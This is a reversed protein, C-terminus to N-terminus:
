WLATSRSVNLHHVQVFDVDIRSYNNRTSFVAKQLKSQDTTCRNRQRKLFYFLRVINRNKAKAKFDVVGFWSPSYSTAQVAQIIWFLSVGHCWCPVAVQQSHVASVNLLSILIHWWLHPYSWETFHKWQKCQSRQKNQNYCVKCMTVYVKMYIILASTYSPSWSSQPTLTTTPNYM